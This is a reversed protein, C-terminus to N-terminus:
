DNYPFSAVLFEESEDKDYVDDHGEGAAGGVFDRANLRPIWRATGPGYVDNIDRGKMRTLRVPAYQIEFVKEGPIRSNNGNNGPPMDDGILNVEANTATKIGLIMWVDKKYLGVVVELWHQVSKNWTMQTLCSRPNKLFYAKAQWGKLLLFKAKREGAAELAYTPLGISTANGTWLPYVFSSGDITTEDIQPRAPNNAPLLHSQYLNQPDSKDTVFQGPQLSQPSIPNRLLLSSYCVGAM